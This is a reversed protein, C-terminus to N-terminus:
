AVDPAPLARQADPAVIAPAIAKAKASPAVVPGREGRTISYGVAGENYRSRRYIHSLCAKVLSLADKDPARESRVLRKDLARAIDRVDHEGCERGLLYMSVIGRNSYDRSHTAGFPADVNANRSGLADIRADTKARYEFARKAKRALLKRENARLVTTSIAKQM